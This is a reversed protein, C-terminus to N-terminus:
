VQNRRYNKEQLTPDVSVHMKRVSLEFDVRSEQQKPSKAVMKDLFEWLAVVGSNWINRWRDRRM